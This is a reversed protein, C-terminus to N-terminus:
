FHFMSLATLEDHSAKTLKDSYSEALNECVYYFCQLKENPGNTLGQIINKKKM